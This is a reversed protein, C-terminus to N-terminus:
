EVAKGTAADAAVARNNEADHLEGIRKRGDEILCKIMILDLQVEATCELYPWRTFLEGRTAESQTAKGCIFAAYREHGTAIPLTDGYQWPFFQVFVSGHMKAITVGVNDDVRATYYNNQISQEPYNLKLLTEPVM